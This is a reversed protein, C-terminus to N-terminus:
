GPQLFEVKSGWLYYLDKFTYSVPRLSSEKSFLTDIHVPVHIKPYM